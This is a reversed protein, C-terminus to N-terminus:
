KEKVKRLDKLAFIGSKFGAENNWISVGGFDEEFTIQWL